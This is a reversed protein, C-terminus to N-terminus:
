FTMGTMNLRTMGTSSDINDILSGRDDRELRELKKNDDGGRERERRRDVGWTRTNSRAGESKREPFILYDYKHM